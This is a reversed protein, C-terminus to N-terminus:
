NTENGNKTILKLFKVRLYSKNGVFWIAPTYCCWGKKRKVQRFEPHSFTSM